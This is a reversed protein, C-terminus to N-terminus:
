FTTRLVGGDVFVDGGICFLRITGFVFDGCVQYDGCFYAGGFVGRVTSAGRTVSFRNLDGVCSHLSRNLKYLLFGFYYASFCLRSSVPSTGTFGTTLLSGFSQVEGMVAVGGAGQEPAYVKAKPASMSVGSLEGRSPFEGPGESEGRPPTELLGRDGTVLVMKCVLRRVM